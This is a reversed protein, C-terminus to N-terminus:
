EKKNEGHKRYYRETMESEVLIQIAMLESCSFSSASSEKEKLLEEIFDDIAILQDFCYYKLNLM